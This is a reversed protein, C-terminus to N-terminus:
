RQLFETLELYTALVNRETIFEIGPGLSQRLTIKRM